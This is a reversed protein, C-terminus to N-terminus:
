GNENAGWGPGEGSLFVKQEMTFLGVGQLFAGEIQGIDIKPNLPKGVDM